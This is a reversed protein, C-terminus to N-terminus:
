DERGDERAERDVPRPGSQGAREPGMENKEYARVIKGVLPHRVVDSSDFEVVGVADLGRLRRVADSLGSRQQKSLDNQSPDGTVVMCSDEGLRTLFMKMQSVTTNQGEDLIVFANSLTRGRMYALPAIEIVGAEELRELDEPEIMDRLADYIPRLYPDLKQQLDGPLFGLHEGAEVVPRTIIIRRVRGKRLRQVAAAVALYTKGTGAAGLGFVLDHKEIADMYRRQNDSRPEVGRPRFRVSGPRHSGQWRNTPGAGSLSGMGGSRGSGNTNRDAGLRTSRSGGSGGGTSGRASEATQVTRDLLIAEIERVGLERGKRAKGLLHQIRLSAEQIGDEQGKLRLNGGRAFIEIDLDQRLLRAYRDYPGLILIAEEHSRLPITLEPM